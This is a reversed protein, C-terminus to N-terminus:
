RGLDAPREDPQESPTGDSHHRLPAPRDARIRERLPLLLWLTSFGVAAAVGLAIAGWGGLVMEGILLVTGTIAVALCVLGSVAMKNAVRIIRERKGHRFLVRHWAAPATMLATAATAFLVTIFHTTRVYDDVEQYRETFVISLLFGFLIQVGAQAVRLEQLLENLNRALRKNDSDEADSM